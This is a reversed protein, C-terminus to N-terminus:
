GRTYKYILNDGNKKEGDGNRGLNGFLSRLNLGSSGEVQGSKFVSSVTKVGKMGANDISGSNMESFKVVKSTVVILGGSVSSRVPSIATISAINQLCQIRKGLKQKM